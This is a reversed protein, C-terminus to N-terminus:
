VDTLIMWYDTGIGLPITSTIKLTTGVKSIDFFAFESTVKNVFQIVIQSAKITFNWEKTTADGKLERAEIKGLNITVDQLDDLADKVTINKYPVEAATLNVDGILGNVSKVKNTEAIVKKNGKKVSLIM